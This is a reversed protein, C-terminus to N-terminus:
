RGIERWRLLRRELLSMLNIFVYGVLSAFLIGALLKPMNLTSGSLVIFGGLNAVILLIDATIAGQIARGAGLRFATAFYPTMLPGIVYRLVQRRNAAFSEATEVLDRRIHHVGAEVNIIIVFISFTTVIVIKGGFELGAYIGIIPVLLIMPTAYAVDILPQITTEGFRSSAALFGIVTGLVAAIVFGVAATRLTGLLAGILEGDAISAFLQPVVKTPPPTAFHRSDSGYVQWAVVFLAVSLLQFTTPGTLRRLVSVPRPLATV